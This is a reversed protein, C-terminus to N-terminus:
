KKPFLHSMLSGSVTETPTGEGPNPSVFPPKPEEEAWLYPDSKKVGELQTDLGLLKDGDLKIEELNLLAKVAKTNRAKSSLLSIEIANSFKVSELDKTYREQTSALDAKLKDVDVGDFKKVTDQLTTITQNAASLEGIKADFKAKDVYAGSALNALKITKSDKLATELESFTLAKDGFATKLYEM